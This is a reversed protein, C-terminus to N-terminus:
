NHDIMPANDEIHTGSTRNWNGNVTWDSKGYVEIDWNGHVRDRRNGKVEVDANGEVLLSANGKINVKVNGKVLIYDDGHVIEYNDKVVKTVKSGDPYVEYFTGKKHHQSIREKGETDDIEHVHGSISEHVHNFPYKAAYDTKREKWQGGFAVQAEDIGNRIKEVVTENTKGRSLRNVDSEDPKNPYKGDPDAFGKGGEPKPPKGPLSGVIVPVEANEGDQFFGWVTTGQVIGTPSHGLGSLSSSQIGNSVVAWPLKDTPLKGLDENHYGYIRVGLRGLEEPDDFREVVGMWWVFEPMKFQRATM